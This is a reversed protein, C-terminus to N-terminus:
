MDRGQTGSLSEILPPEPPTWFIDRDGGFRLVFRLAFYASEGRVKMANVYQCLGYNQMCTRELIIQNEGVFLGRALYGQLTELFRKHFLEITKKTGVFMSGSTFFDKEDGMALTFWDKGPPPNSHAGILISENPVIELHSMITQRSFVNGSRFCGIDMWMFHSSGYPNLRMAENVFHTKSLWIWYLRYSKRYRGIPDLMFQKEWVSINYDTAIPLEDLSVEIITTRNMAHSRLSRIIDAWDSTTFVIVPDDIALMHTMWQVYHKKSHKSPIEFYATVVTGEVISTANRSSNSLIEDGSENHGSGVMGVRSGRRNDLNMPKPKPMGNVGPTVEQLQSINSSQNMDGREDQGNGVTGHNSGRNDINKRTRRSAAKYKLTEIEKSHKELQDEFRKLRNIFADNNFGTTEVGADHTEELISSLHQHVSQAQRELRTVNASLQDLIVGYEEFKRLLLRDTQDQLSPQSSQFVITYVSLSTIAVVLLQFRNSRITMRDHRLHFLHCSSKGIYPM